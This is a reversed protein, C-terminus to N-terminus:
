SRFPSFSTHLIRNSATPTSRGSSTPQLCTITILNMCSVDRLCFFNNARRHVIRHPLIKKTHPIAVVVVVNTTTTTTTTDFSATFDWKVYGGTGLIYIMIM